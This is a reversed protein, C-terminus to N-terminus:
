IFFLFMFRDDMFVTLSIVYIMWIVKLMVFGLYQIDGIIKYKKYYLIIKRSFYGLLISTGLIGVNLLMDVYENHAVSRFNTQIYSTNVMVGGFLMNELPLNLFYKIHEQVMDSRGTTFSSVNGYTWELIKEEIRGSLSGLVPTEPYNVGYIYMHVMILIICICFIITKINIKKTLVLYIVWLIINVLIATMSLSMFVTAYLVVVTVIRAWPKFLELCVVAFVAVTYFFGTYNPDEFTALFRNLNGYSMINETVLGTWLAIFCVYIYISFFRRVNENNDIFYLTILLVCSIVDLISFIASRMNYSSMVLLAYLIYVVVPLIVDKKLRVRKGQLIRIIVLAIILLSVIRQISLGFVIGYFQNYFLIFPYVLYLEDRLLLVVCTLVIVVSLLPQPFIGSLASCVVLVLIVFNNEWFKKNLRVIM